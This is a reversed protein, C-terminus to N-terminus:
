LGRIKQRATRGLHGWARGPMEAYLAEQGLSTPVCTRTSAEGLGQACEQRTKSRPEGRHTPWARGLGGSGGQENWEFTHRVAYTKLHKHTHSISLLSQFVIKTFKLKLSKPSFSWFASLTITTKNERESILCRRIGIKNKAFLISRLSATVDTFTEWSSHKSFM